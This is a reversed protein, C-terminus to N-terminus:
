YTNVYNKSNHYVYVDHHMMKLSVNTVYTQFTFIVKVKVNKKRIQGQYIYSLIASFMASRAVRVIYLRPFPVATSYTPNKIFSFFIQTNTGLKNNKVSQYKMYLTMFQFVKNLTNFLDHTTYLSFTIDKCENEFKM